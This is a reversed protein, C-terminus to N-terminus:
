GGGVGFSQMCLSGAPALRIQARQGPVCHVEKQDSRGTQEVAAM